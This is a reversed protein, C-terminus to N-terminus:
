AGGRRLRLFARLLLAAGHRDNLKKGMQYGCWHAYLIESM